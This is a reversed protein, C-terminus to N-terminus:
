RSALFEGGGGVHLQSVTRDNVVMLEGEGIGVSGVCYLLLNVHVNSITLQLTPNLLQSQNIWTETNENTM